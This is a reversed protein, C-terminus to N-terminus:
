PPPSLFLFRFGGEVPRSPPGARGRPGGGNPAGIATEAPARGSGRGERGGRWRGRGAPGRTPSRPAPSGGALLYRDREPQLVHGRRARGFPVFNARTPGSVRLRPSRASGPASRAPRRPPQTALPPWPPWPLPGRLRAPPRARSFLSLHPPLSPEWQAAAPAAYPKAHRRFGPRPRQHCALPGSPRSPRALLRPAPLAM